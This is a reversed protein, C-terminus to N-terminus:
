TSKKEASNAAKQYRAMHDLFEQNHPDLQITKTQVKVAEAFQQDSYLAEALTDIVGAQQWHTLDVARRAHELAAKPDRYKLDDCTAYLWALDNQAEAMDPKLRLAQQYHNIAEPFFQHQYFASALEYQADANDIPFSKQVAQLYEAAKSTNGMQRYARAVGFQAERAEAKDPKSRLAQQYHEIAEAFFEQQYLLSGLQFQAEADDSPFNKQFAQLYEAAKSTNGMEKYARALGFQADPSIPNLRLATSEERM